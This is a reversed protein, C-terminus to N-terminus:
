GIYYRDPYRKRMQEEKHEERRKAELAIRENEIAVEKVRTAVLAETFNIKGLAETAHKRTYEHSDKLAKILPNVASTGFKSLSDTAQKRMVENSDNLVKILPEIARPDGIKGLAEVVYQRVDSDSDQLASILPEIARPDGIKGLVVAANIREYSNNYRLAKILGKINKKKELEKLDPKFLGEFFGM